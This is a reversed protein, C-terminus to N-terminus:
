SLAAKVLASAKGFDMKGAFNKKLEGMTRGMDKLGEASIEGITQAVAKEIEEQTFQRPLFEAIIEIEAQEATALDMRGGQEYATISDKRQRIMTTLMQLIEEDSIGTGNDQDQDRTAIDRDHLTAKILRLTSIKRKDKSKMADKLSDKLGARLM